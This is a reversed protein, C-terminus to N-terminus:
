TLNVRNNQWEEGWITKGITNAVRNSFVLEKRPSFLGHTILLASCLQTGHVVSRGLPVVNAISPTIPLAEM